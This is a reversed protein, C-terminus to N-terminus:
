EEIWRCEQRLMGYMIMDRGRGFGNRVCGENRFGLRENLSRAAKNAKAVTGTVRVCKLQTFPYSFFARLTAKTLWGPMGACHMRIDHEGASVERYETYVVGGIIRGDRVVGIAEFDKEPPKEMDRIKGAVWQAVLDRQGALIM